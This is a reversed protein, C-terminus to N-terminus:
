EWAVAGVAGSRGSNDARAGRQRNRKGSGGFGYGERRAREDQGRILDLPANELMVSISFGANDVLVDFPGHKNIITSLQRELHRSSVDLPEWSASPNSTIEKKANSISSRNCSTAKLSHEPLPAIARALSLGLRSSCGIVLFYM